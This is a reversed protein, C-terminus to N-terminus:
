CPHGIVASVYRRGQKTRKQAGNIRMISQVRRITCGYRKAIKGIEDAIDPWLCYEYDAEKKRSERTFITQESIKQKILASCDEWIWQDIDEPTNAKIFKEMTEHALDSAKYDMLYLHHFQALIQDQPIDDYQWRISEVDFIMFRRNGSSDRLIHDFNCSSIYSVYFPVHDSKRAYAARFTAGPSTILSKLTSLSVRHTEDFEPINAVLLDSITQYNEIKRDQIEIESFYNGFSGFMYNIWSDKGIGQGGKLIIMRNQERKKVDHLRRFINAGWERFLETAIENSINTIKLRDVMENIVDRGGWRPIDICLRPSLSGTWRQLHRNVYAPSLGAETALSEIVERINDIPEWRDARESLYYTTRRIPDFRVDPFHFEFFSRFDDYNTSSKKGESHLRPYKGIDWNIGKNARQRIKWTIVRECLAKTFEYPTEGKLYKTDSLYPGKPDKVNLERDAQITKHILDDMDEAQDSYRLIFGVVVDHRAKKKVFEKTLSNDYESITVLHDIHHSRIIGMDEKDSELLDTSGVWRYSIGDSHQSPPLITYSGNSLVDVMRVGMRDIGIKRPVSDHYRYFRTWGKKGKKIVQTPPLAGIIMSEIWDSDGMNEYDFDIAIIGSVEGCVIGISHAPYANVYREQDEVKPFKGFKENWRPVTCSKRNVEVPLVSFGCDYYNQAWDGFAGM